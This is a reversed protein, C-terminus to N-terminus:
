FFIGHREQTINLLVGGFVLQALLSLAEMLTEIVVLCDLFDRATTLTLILLMGYIQFVKKNVVLLM